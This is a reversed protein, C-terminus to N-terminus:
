SAWEELEKLEDKLEKKASPLDSNPVDPLKTPTPDIKFLDEDLKEQELRDLEREIEDDDVDNGIGVSAIASSVENVLDHAENIEDMMDNVDDVNFQKNTKKMSNAAQKLTNMVNVNMTSNELTSRQAELTIM